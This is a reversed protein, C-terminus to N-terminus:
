SNLIGQGKRDRNGTHDGGGEFAWVEMSSVSLRITSGWLEIGNWVRCNITEKVLWGLHGGIADFEVEGFNGFDTEGETNRMDIFSVVDVWNGLRFPSSSTPILSWM